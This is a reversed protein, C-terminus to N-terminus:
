CSSGREGRVGAQQAAPCTSGWLARLGGHTRAHTAPVFTQATQHLNQRFGEYNVFFFRRTRRSRGAWRRASNIASFYRREPWTSSIERIWTTTACFNM